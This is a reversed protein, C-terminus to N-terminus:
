IGIEKFNEINENEKLIVVKYLIDDKIFIKGEDPYFVEIEKVEKLGKPKKGCWFGGVGKLKGKYTVAKRM